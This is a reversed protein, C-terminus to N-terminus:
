NHKEEWIGSKEPMEYNLSCRQNKVHRKIELLQGEVTTAVVFDVATQVIFGFDPGLYKERKKDLYLTNGAM